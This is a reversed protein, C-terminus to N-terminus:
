GKIGYLAFSSYQQLTGNSRLNISTIASTSMWLGSSVTMAGAQKASGNGNNDWGSLSRTTKNKNTNAYDLIDIVYTGFNNSLATAGVMNGVEIVTSYGYSGAQVDGSSAGFAEVYHDKFSSSAGNFTMYFDSSYAAVNDRAIGRIQLHQYTSPISSFTVSSSGGGGVTVTAISEYSNSVGGAGSSAIIGILSNLM